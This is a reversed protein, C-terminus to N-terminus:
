KIFGNAKLKEWTLGEKSQVSGAATSEGFLLREVYKGIIDNELNVRDGVRKAILTTREITHPILTLRFRDVELENVTLSVGDVSISGKAAIYRMIEPTTRIWITLAEGTRSLETIEGTGDVHGQVIHGGLRDGVKLALELNIPRGVGWGGLTTRELTEHSIDLTVTGQSFRTITLCCGDCALSDGPRAGTLDLNKTLIRAWGNLGERGTAAVEGVTEVIGTFM